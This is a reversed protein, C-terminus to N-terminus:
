WCTACVVACWCIQIDPLSVSVALKQTFDAIVTCLFDVLSGSSHTSQSPTLHIDAERVDAGSNGDVQWKDTLELVLTSGYLLVSNNSIDSASICSELYAPVEPM